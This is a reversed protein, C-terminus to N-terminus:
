NTWSLSLKALGQDLALSGESVRQGQAHGLGEIGATQGQGGVRAPHAQGEARAEQDHDQSEVKAELDQGRSQNWLLYWQLKQNKEKLVQVKPCGVFLGFLTLIPVYFITM